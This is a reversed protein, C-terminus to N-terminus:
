VRQATWARTKYPVVIKELPAIIDEITALIRQFGEPGAQVQIDNVSKWAGLYREKSMSIEHCAEFFVVDKFKGTSGLEEFYNRVHGSAGSSVRKLNPIHDAIVKEIKEHLPNGTINRPNWLVTLFGKPKIVRHFEFLAKELNAWHFSSAMTLWDASQSELGTTEASGAKWQVSSGKTFQIGQERMADNPEVATCNFGFDSLMKTWLGTGAGVDAVKSVGPNVGTYNVLAKLVLHSYDPRYKAYNEALSSFEGAKM